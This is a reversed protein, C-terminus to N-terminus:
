GSKRLGLCLAHSKAVGLVHSQAFGWQQDCKRVDETESSRAKSNSTKACPTTAPLPEASTLQAAIEPCRRTSEETRLVLLLGEFSPFSPFSTRRAPAPQAAPCGSGGSAFFFVPHLPELIGEQLHLVRRSFAVAGDARAMANQRLKKAASSTHHDPLLPSRKAARAQADAESTPELQRCRALSMGM